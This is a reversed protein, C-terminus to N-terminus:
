NRSYMALKSERISLVGLLQPACRYVSSDRTGTIMPIPAVDIQVSFACGTISFCRRAAIELRGTLM